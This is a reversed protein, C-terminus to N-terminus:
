ELTTGSVEVAEKWKAIEANLYDRFEAPTTAAVDFGQERMRADVEPDALAESFSEYLKEIIPQPTGAPVMVAYWPAGEYGPVGSEAVTPLDPVIPSRKLSTVALGRIEGAEMLPLATPISLLAVQVEGALLDTLAPAGGKYPIHVLDIGLESKLLEMALHSPGGAGSSAYNLEGPKSRALEVLEQFTKAPVDPHVAVIYATSGLQTVPELDKTVDYAVDKYLAPSMSHAINGQLVTYGDPKAKAVLEAAINGGAGPRNEVVVPQKLIQSVKDAVIRGITDAGGGPTFPIIFNIPRDPYDQAAAPLGFVSLAAALSAAHLLRTLPMRFEERPCREIRRM